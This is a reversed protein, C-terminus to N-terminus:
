VSLESHADTRMVNQEATEVGVRNHPCCLLNKLGERFVKNKFTYIFPNMCSNAFALMVTAHHYWKTFDVNAGLNYSFFLIQNPGWCVVFTIVVLCLMHLIQKRAKLQWMQKANNKMPRRDNSSAVNSQGSHHVMQSQRASQGTNHSTGRDSRPGNEHQQVTTSADSEFRTRKASGNSVTQRNDDDATPPNEMNSLAEGHQSLRQESAKLIAMTKYYCFFMIGIPVFYKAVVNLVGIVTQVEKSPWIQICRGRVVTSVYPIFSNIFLGIFWTSILLKVIVKKTCYVRHKFPYVVALYREIKMLLLTYMSAVFCLWLPLKSYFMKCAIQGGVGSSIHAPPSVVHLAILFISTVLDCIALHFIFRFTKTSLSRMRGVVVCVLLNGTIGVIAILSYTALVLPEQELGGVSWSIREDDPTAETGNSVNFAAEDSMVDVTGSEM